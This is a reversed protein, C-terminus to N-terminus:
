STGSKTFANKSSISPSCASRRAITAPFSSRARSRGCTSRSTAQAWPQLAVADETRLRGSRLASETAYHFSRMMGAVDVLPCRKYRREHLMRGPEGEFDIIVFDSGTDLVQGLHLDGHVRIRELELKRATIDRLRTDIRAEDDCIARVTERM